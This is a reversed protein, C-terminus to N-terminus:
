TSFENFCGEAGGARGWGWLAMGSGTKALPTHDAYHIRTMYFRQVASDLTSASVHLTVQDFKDFRVTGRPALDPGWGRKKGGM